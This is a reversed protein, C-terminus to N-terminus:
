KRQMWLWPTPGARWEWLALLRDMDSLTEMWEPLASADLRRDIRQVHHSARFRAAILECLGPQLGEHTEVLVDAALLGKARVPDLLEAEAGEIDCIVLTKQAACVEFDEHRMLGGIEVRDAVGNAEALSRCLAQAKVDADRAWVRAQPMRLALGVAYYGEASGLDIILAYGGVMIKEVIPQLSAEYCGLLRAARAGEAARIGYDMGKFPGSLVRAGSRQVLTNAVLDARWKALYRLARELQRADPAGELLHKVAEAVASSRSPPPEVLVHEM